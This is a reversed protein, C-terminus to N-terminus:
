SDSEIHGDRMRIIGHAHQGIGADSTVMIIAQNHEQNLRKLLGM